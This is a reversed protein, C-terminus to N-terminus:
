KKIVSILYPIRLYYLMKYFWCGPVKIVSDLDELFEVMFPKAAPKRLQINKNTGIKYGIANASHLRYEVLQENLFIVDGILTSIFMIQHDHILSDSNIQLYVDRVKNTFCSTCGQVVNGFILRGFTVPTISEKVNKVFSSINFREIDTIDNGQGDILMFNTCVLAARKENMLQIIREIKRPHWRDDQDALFIYDGQTKSIANYFNRTYGCNSRNEFLKINSVKNNKIIDKIIEVTSDTSCDDFIIIEDARVTQNIISELQERVYAEGNYTTMAVSIM